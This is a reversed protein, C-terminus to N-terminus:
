GNRLLNSVLSIFISETRQCWRAHFVQINLRSHRFISEILRNLVRVISFLNSFDLITIYIEFARFNILRREVFVREEREKLILELAIGAFPQGRDFSVRVSRPVRM